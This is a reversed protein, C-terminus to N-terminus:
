SLSVFTDGIFVMPDHPPNHHPFRFTQTGAWNTTDITGRGKGRRSRAPGGALPMGAPLKVPAMKYATM